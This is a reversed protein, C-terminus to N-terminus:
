QRPWISQMPYVHLQELRANGGVASVEVADIAQGGDARASTKYVAGSGASVEYMPRDVVVRLRLTGDTLALPMEDLTAAAVDYVVTNDGFKVQVQRASEPKISLLIDLLQTDVNVRVPKDPQVPQAPKSTPEGRLSELEKIPEAFLRVGQPTTRLTLETPLSFGQNFPMDPMDVRAWGIQIVRGHPALSFCQSAYYAGFHVQHKGEHEPSFRKGDFQGVVYRADAALVVWRRNDPDGDVPLEFLEPCEFFDPLRSQFTWQKLDKSTYFAVDRGDSEDYLAIVWHRGPEYWVLKPDRGRHEIVPNEAIYHWTRGRDRSIAIAEGCGTDTFAAVMVKEDGAQWGGTNNSDINASGSFCHNKAMVRPYLAYSLEQWHVLDQSVAHGWFMNAWKPGFPNSQWFLHWQGEVYVMGNPDNNWGRMQSFRLQPRLREDYLPQTHRLTGSATVQALGQSRYPLRDVTVTATQGAHQSVDLWAWWDPEATALNIDFDQVVQDAVLIKMRCARASNAIPFLLYKANLLVDRTREAASTVAPRDSQVIQDINIHGWGGTAQDVIQIVVQKGRLHKVDWGAWDLAESGGPQDNPGTATLAVKGDVLLNICTQDVHKGGGVLFNLYDRQIPFAPSTLTGTANDGGLFSNVLGEGEFGSVQMQRPLTGRAPGTGFADGTTKWAGYDPGEFDAVLIDEAAVALSPTVLMVAAFLSCLAILMKHRM